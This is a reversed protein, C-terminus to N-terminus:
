IVVRVDGKKLAALEADLSGSRLKFAPVQQLAAQLSQATQSSDEIVLGLPYTSHEGGTFIAGFILIFFMPFAFTWFLASRERIFQRFNAILLNQFARM